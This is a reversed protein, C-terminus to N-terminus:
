ILTITIMGLLYAVFIKVKTNANKNSTLFALVGLSILGIIIQEIM